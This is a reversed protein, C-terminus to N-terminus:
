WAGIVLCSSLFSHHFTPTNSRRLSAPNPDEDNWWEMTGNKVGVGSVHSRPGEEERILCRDEHRVDEAALRSQTHDQTARATHCEIWRYTGTQLNEFMPRRRYVRSKESIGPKKQGVVESRTSASRPM